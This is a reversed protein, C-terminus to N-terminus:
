GVFQVGTSLDSLRSKRAQARTPPFLGNVGFRREYGAKRRLSRKAYRM